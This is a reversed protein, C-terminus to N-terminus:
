EKKCKFEVWLQDLSSWVANEFTKPSLEFFLITKKTDSCLKVHIKCHLTIPQRSLFDLMHITGTFQALDGPLAKESNLKATVPVPKENRHKISDTNIKILGTYYAELHNQISDKNVFPVDDVFWLFAYTWYEQNDPKGWGPTFRIDEVGKYQISPAFFPPLLFREITWDKPIPLSYPAEWKQGDFEPQTEQGYSVISFLFVTIFLLNKM